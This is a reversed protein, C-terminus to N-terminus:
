IQKSGQLRNVLHPLLGSSPGQREKIRKVWLESAARQSNLSLERHDDLRAAKHQVAEVICRTGRGFM